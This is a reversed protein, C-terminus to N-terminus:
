VGPFDEQVPTSRLDLLGQASTGVILIKDKLADAPLTGRIVDTASVYEFSGRPGRYPVLAAMREDLPIVLNGVSVSMLSGTGDGLAEGRTSVPLNGLYVQVLALSIAPYYGAGYRMFVPVRRTVGDFDLAPYLHGAHTAEKQLELINGSYGTALHNLFKINKNGALTADDFTPPPLVGSEDTKGGMFFGLVVPHKAIEDALIRDYDLTKRAGELFSQYEPTNKLPGQGLEELKSLGSSTDKESFAVDFGMTRAKYKDFSQRVLLAVKDRPWPWRGEANLSKEDIDVIVVHRDITNPMFLRLRADYAWLELQQLFRLQTAEVENMLFAAVLGVGIVLRVWANPTLKPIWRTAPTVATRQASTRLSGGTAGM